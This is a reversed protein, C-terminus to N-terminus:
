GIKYVYNNNKQQHLSLFKKHSFCINECNNKLPYLSHDSFFDLPLNGCSKHSKRRPSQFQAFFFPGTNVSGIKMFFWTRQFM